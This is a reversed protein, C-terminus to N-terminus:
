GGPGENETLAAGLAQAKGSLLYWEAQILNVIGTWPADDERRAGEARDLLERYLALAKGACRDM